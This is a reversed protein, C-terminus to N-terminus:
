KIFLILIPGKACICRCREKKTFASVLPMQQLSFRKQLLKLRYSENQGWVWGSASLKVDFLNFHHVVKLVYKHNNKSGM